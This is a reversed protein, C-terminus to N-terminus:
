ISHLTHIVGRSHSAESLQQHTGITAHRRSKVAQLIRPGIRSGLVSPSIRYLVVVRFKPCEQPVIISMDREVTPLFCVVVGSWFHLWQQPMYIFIVRDKCKHGSHTTSTTAGGSTIVKEGGDTHRDRHVSAKVYRLTSQHSPVLPSADDPPTNNACPSVSYVTHPTDIAACAQKRSKPRRRRCIGYPDFSIFRADLNRRDFGVVEVKIYRPRSPPPSRTEVEYCYM